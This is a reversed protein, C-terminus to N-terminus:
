MSSGAGLTSRISRIKNLHGELISLARSAFDKIQPDKGKSAEKKFAKVDEEHDKVMDNVYARDFATGSLKELKNYMSEQRPSLDAALTMGKKAATEELDHNAKSHDDVMQRGFAKVDANSAKDAALQGLKVEAAGGQAAKMAFIVDASKAMKRDGNDFYPKNEDQARAASPAAILGFMAAVAFCVSPQFRM